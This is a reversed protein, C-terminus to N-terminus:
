QERVMTPKSSHGGDRGEPELGGGRQGGDACPKPAGRLAGGAPEEPRAGDGCTGGGAAAGGVRHWQRRRWRRDGSKQGTGVPQHRHV